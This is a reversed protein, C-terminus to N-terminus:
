CVVFLYIFSCGHLVLISTGGKPRGAISNSLPKWSTQPRGVEGKTRGQNRLCLTTQNAHFIGLEYSCKRLFM